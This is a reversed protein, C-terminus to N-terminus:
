TLFQTFIPYSTAKARYKLFIVRHRVYYIHTCDKRFLLLLLQYIDHAPV